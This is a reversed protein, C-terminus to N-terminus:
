CRWIRAYWEGWHGGFGLGLGVGDLSDGEDREAAGLVEDVGLLHESEERGVSEEGDGGLGDLILLVVVEREGPGLLVGARCGPADRGCVGDDDVGAAEELGGLLFREADDFFGDFEFLLALDFADDDGAAEHLAVAGLHEIPRGANVGHDADEIALVDDFGHSADLGLALGEFFHGLVPDVGVGEGASVGLPEVGDPQRDGALVALADAVVLGVVGSESEGWAM